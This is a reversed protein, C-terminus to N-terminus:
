SSRNPFSPPHSRNKSYYDQVSQNIEQEAKVGIGTIWTLKKNQVADAVDGITVLGGNILANYIRQPLVLYEIPRDGLFFLYKRGSDTDVPM